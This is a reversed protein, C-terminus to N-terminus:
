IADAKSSILVLNNEGGMRRTTVEKIVAVPQLIAEKDAM